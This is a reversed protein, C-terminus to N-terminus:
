SFSSYLFFIDHTNHIDNLSTDANIAYDAERVEPEFIHIDIVYVGGYVKM